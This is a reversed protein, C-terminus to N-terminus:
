EDGKLIWEITAMQEKIRVVEEFDGEKIAARLFKPYRRLEARLARESIM